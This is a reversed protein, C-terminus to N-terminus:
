SYKLYPMRKKLYKGMGDAFYVCIMDQIVRGPTIEVKSILRSKGQNSQQLFFLTNEYVLLYVLTLGHIWYLHSGEPCQWKFQGNGLSLIKGGIRKLFDCQIANDWGKYIHIGDMEYIQCLDTMGINFADKALNLVTDKIKEFLLDILRIFGPDNTYLQNIKDEKGM